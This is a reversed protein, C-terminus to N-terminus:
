YTKPAAGIWEREGKRDYGQGHKIGKSTSHQTLLVLDSDTM